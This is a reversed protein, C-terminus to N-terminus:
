CCIEWIILWDLHRIYGTYNYKQPYFTM